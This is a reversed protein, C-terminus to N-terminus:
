RVAGDYGRREDRTACYTHLLARRVCIQSMDNSLRPLSFFINHPIAHLCALVEPFYYLSTVSTNYEVYAILVVVFVFLSSLALTLPWGYRAFWRQLHWEYCGCQQACRERRQSSATMAGSMLRIRARCRCSCNDIRWTCCGCHLYWWVCPCLVAPTAAIEALEDEVDSDELFDIEGGKRRAFADEGEVEADEDDHLLGEEASASPAKTVGKKKKCCCRLCKNGLDCGGELCCCSLCCAFALLAFMAVGPVAYLFLGLAYAVLNEEDVPIIADTYVRARCDPTCPSDNSPATWYCNAAVECKGLPTDRLTVCTVNGSGIAAESSGPDVWRVVPDSALWGNKIANDCTVTTLDSLLDPYNVPRWQKLLWSCAPLEFGSVSSTATAIALVWKM